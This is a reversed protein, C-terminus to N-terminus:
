RTARLAAELSQRAEVFDPNARLAAEFHPIAASTKGAAALLEGLNEHAEAYGPRAAIAQEYRAKAEDAHGQADLATGLVYLAEPMGPRVALAREAHKAADAPLNERLFSVATQIEGEAFEPHLRVAEQFRERAAAPQGENLALTGVAYLADKSGPSIRLAEAFHRRAEETRGRRALENGLDIEMTENPGTVGVAHEYLTLSDRWTAIQRWTLISLALAVVATAVALARVSVRGRARDAAEWVLAALIGLSPLYTYRDATSQWGVQVLGLVPLLAVLYWVWGALLWPRRARVRYAAASIAALVVLAAASKWGLGSLPHPYLPALHSPWFMKGLYTVDAVAANELRGGLSVQLTETAGGTRQAYLTAISAGISLLVFPIKELALARWGPGPEEGDHRPVRALPWFDLVLLLLPLTVLTGKSLLSAAFLALSGAYAGRHRRALWAGWAGIAALGFFVSLVDKREAVWAVSEVRLPHLGFLLAIAASRGASGTARRLLLFVLLGSGAHFLVSTAHHAAARMGWLSVDAMHSMWTLPHWNAAETATAAWAAGAASLGARVHPNKLVYIEDDFSVFGNRLVGSFVVLTAAALLACALLPSIGRSVVRM